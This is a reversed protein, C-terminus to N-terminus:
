ESDNESDSGSESPISSDDGTGYVPTLDDLNADSDLWDEFINAWKSMDRLGLYSNEPGGVDPVVIAPAVFAEVDALYYKLSQLKGGIKTCDIELRVVLETENPVLIVEDKKGKKKRIIEEEGTMESACEVIAYIGPAVQGLGGYAIGANPPILSLDVFGWIKCPLTGDPGWDVWVWDRWVSGRYAANARFHHGGRFHYTLMVVESYYHEVAKQLGNFFRLFADEMMFRPHKSQYKRTASIQCIGNADEFIRFAAGGTTPQKEDKVVEPPHHYGDYYDWLPRGRIEEQALELLHVEMLRQATQIEFTSRVKQTLKAAKITEKHHSELTGTDVEMPVGFNM